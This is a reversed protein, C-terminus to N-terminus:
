RRIMECAVDATEIDIDNIFTNIWNQRLHAVFSDDRRENQISLDIRSALEYTRSSTKMKIYCYKLLFARSFIPLVLVHYHRKRKPQPQQFSKAVYVRGYCFKQLVFNHQPYVM